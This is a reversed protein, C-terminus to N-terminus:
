GPRMPSKETASFYGSQAHKQRGQFASGTCDELCPRARVMEAPSVRESKGIERLHMKRQKIM